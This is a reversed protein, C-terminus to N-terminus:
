PFPRAQESDSRRHSGPEGLVNTCRLMPGLLQEKDGFGCSAQWDKPNRFTGFMIDLIPLDGFNYSHLGSQHHVCHSEPRQIVYGLWHPTPVNWHYFLEAIGTLMVAYTTAEPSLGVLFYAIASSLLGNAFIELPHKYFSTIIELRAPSHHVQHFVRWLFHSSHRVRHWWYYIFVIALYGALTGGIIGLGDASWPRRGAMWPDWARTACWAISLQLGNLILARTWWGRVRPWSRGTVVCEVLLMAAACAAVVILIM